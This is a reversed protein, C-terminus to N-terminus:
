NSSELYQCTVADGQIECDTVVDEKGDEDEEELDIIQPGQVTLPAGTGTASTNYITINGFDLLPAPGDETFFDEIIWDATRGCVPADPPAEMDHSVHEGSTLNEITATGTTNSTAVVTLRLIDGGSIHFEYFDRAPDPYWEHWPVIQGDGHIDIGTQLLGSDGDCKHTGDIGVWASVAHRNGLDNISPVKIVGVVKTIGSGTQYAGAWNDSYEPGTGTKLMSSIRVHNEPRSLPRPSAIGSGLLGFLYVNKM